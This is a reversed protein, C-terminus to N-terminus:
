LVEVHRESRVFLFSRESVSHFAGSKLSYQLTLRLAQLGNKSISESQDQM